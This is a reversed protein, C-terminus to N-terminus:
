PKFLPGVHNWIMEAMLAHGRESLHVTDLTAGSTFVVRAFDRKSIMQVGHKAAMERQVRGYANYFPPLPLELMIIRRGPRTLLALLNDLDAAFRAPDLSEFFDNGGIEVVVVAHAAEPHGNLSEAQRIASHATAGERSVDVVRVHFREGFQKPWTREQPGLMGASVSDGIVALAPSAVSGRRLLPARRYSAEWAGAVLIWGIALTVLLRLRAPPLPSQAPRPLWAPLTLAGGVLYFWLPLPTASAAIIIWGIFSLLRFAVRSRPGDRWAIAILGGALAALGFFFADGGAVLFAVIRIV